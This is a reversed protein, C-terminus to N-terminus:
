EDDLSLKLMMEKPFGKCNERLKEVERMLTIEM